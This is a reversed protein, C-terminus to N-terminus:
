AALTWGAGAADPYVGLEGVGAMSATTLGLIILFLTLLRYM